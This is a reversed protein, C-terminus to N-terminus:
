EGVREIKGMVFLFLLAAIICHAGVFWLGVGYSGTAAERTELAWFSAGLRAGTSWQRRDVKVGWLGHAVRM